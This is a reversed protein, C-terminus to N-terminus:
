KFVLMRVGEDIKSQEIQHKEKLLSCFRNLMPGRHEEPLIKVTEDFLEFIETLRLTIARLATM